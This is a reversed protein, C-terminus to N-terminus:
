RGARNAAWVLAEIAEATDYVRVVDGIRLAGQLGADTQSLAVAASPLTQGAATELEITYSAQEGPTAPLVALRAPPQSILLAALQALRTEDDATLPLMVRAASLQRWGDPTRIFSAPEGAVTVRIVALDAAPLNYATRRIYAEPELTVKGSRFAESPVVATVPGLTIPRAADQRQDEDPTITAALGAHVSANEIGLFSGLVLTRTATHGPATSTLTVTAIPNDLGTEASAPAVDDRFREVRIQALARVADEVAQRDAEVEVPATIFWRTGRRELTLRRDQAHAYFDIRSERGAVQPFARDSRWPALGTGAFVDRLALDVLGFRPRNNQDAGTIRVLARGGAAADLFDVTRATDPTSLTISALTAPTGEPRDAAAITATALLRIGSRVRAEDAPWALTDQTASASTNTDTNTTTLLWGALPHRDISQTGDPTTRTIANVLAPDIDLAVIATNNRRQAPDPLSYATVATAASIVAAALWALLAKTTVGARHRSSRSPAARPRSSAHPM